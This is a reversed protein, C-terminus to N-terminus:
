SPPSPDPGSDKWEDDFLGLRECARIFMSRTQAAERDIEAMREEHRSMREVALAHLRESEALRRESLAISSKIDIIAGRIDIVAGRIDLVAVALQNSVQGVTIMEEELRAIRRENSEM